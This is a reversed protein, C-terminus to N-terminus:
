KGGKDDYYIVRKLFSYSILSYSPSGFLGRLSPSKAVVGTLKGPLM